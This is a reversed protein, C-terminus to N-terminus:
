GVVRFSHTKIGKKHLKALVLMLVDSKYMWAKGPDDTWAAVWCKVADKEMGMVWFSVPQDKMTHPSAEACAVAIAEVKKLDSDVSVWFEAHSWIYNDVVSYNVFEKNLMTSNSIIYRRWDWIKITTHTPTINEVTGYQDDVIVTDGTRFQRSLTIVIGAILNEIFPRAAIGLVLMVVATVSSILQTPMSDWYPISLLSLVVMGFVGLISYRIISFRLRLSKRARIQSKKESGDLSSNDDIIKFDVTRSLRTSRLSEVWKLVVVLLVSGVSVGIVIFVIELIM